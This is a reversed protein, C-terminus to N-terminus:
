RPLLHVLGGLRACMLAVLCLLSQFVDYGLVATFTVVGDPLVPLAERGM